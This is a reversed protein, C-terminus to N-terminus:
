RSIEKPAFPSIVNFRINAGIPVQGTLDLHHAAVVGIVPYGGTLPHDSLFLVPQGSHPVQIAGRTTGESPLEAGDRRELPVAGHLRMGVRSSEATVQWTQSVFTTLGTETFWDSRPGLIVDLSVIDDGNPLPPSLPRDPQVAASPREAPILFHGAVIPDPGIRALTDTSSSGITPEVVFGGRLALYSRMGRLPVGIELEDGADLAFPQGFPAQALTGDPARITLPCLAGTVALTLPRDARVSFGGFVIEVVPEERDNGVCVNAEVFADRDLAGSRSIGQDARGPRGSDQFLAARDARTVLLGTAQRLPPATVSDAPQATRTWKDVRRFRVRDGPALLAPRERATDWMRTSTTGLLQWGGPSDSPYIGGFKGAIAM